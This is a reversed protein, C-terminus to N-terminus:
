RIGVDNTVPLRLLFSKISKTVTKHIVKSFNRQSADVVRSMLTWFRTTPVSADKVERVIVFTVTDFPDFTACTTVFAEDVSSHRFNYQASWKEVKTDPNSNDPMNIYAMAFGVTWMGDISNIGDSDASGSIHVANHPCPHKVISLPTNAFAQTAVHALKNHIITIPM